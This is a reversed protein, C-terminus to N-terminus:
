SRCPRELGQKEEIRNLRRLIEELISKEEFKTSRSPACHVNEKTFGTEAIASKNSYQTERLVNKGKRNERSHSSSRAELPVKKRPKTLNDIGVISEQEEALTAYKKKGYFERSENIQRDSENRLNLVYKKGTEKWFLSNSGYNVQTLVAKELDEKCDFYVFASGRPNGNSNVPIFITKAKVQKLQRFLLVEMTNRPIGGLVARFLKREEMIKEQKIGKSIRTLWRGIPLAWTNELINKYRQNKLTLDVVATKNFKNTTWTINKVKGYRGMLKKISVNGNKLPVDWITYTEQMGLAEQKYQTLNNKEKNQDVNVQFEKDELSMMVDEEPNEPKELQQVQKGDEIEYKLKLEDELVQTGYDITGCELQLLTEIRAQNKAETSDVSEKSEKRQIEGLQKESLKTYCELFHRIICIEEATITQIAKALEQDVIQTRVCERKLLDLCGTGGYKIAQCGKKLFGVKWEPVQM